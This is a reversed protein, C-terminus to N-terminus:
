SGTTLSVDMLHYSHGSVVTYFQIQVTKYNVYHDRLIGLDSVSNTALQCANKNSERENKNNNQKQKCFM